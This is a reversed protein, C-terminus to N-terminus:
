IYTHTHTHSHLHVYHGEIGPTHLTTLLLLLALYAQISVRLHVGTYTYLIVSPMMGWRFLAIFNRFKSIGLAFKSECIGIRNQVVLEVNSCLRVAHSMENYTIALQIFCPTRTNDHQIWKIM